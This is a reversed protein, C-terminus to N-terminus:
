IFFIENFFKGKPNCPSNLVNSFYEQYQSSTHDNSFTIEITKPLGTPLIFGYNNVNINIIKKQLKSSFQIIKELNIDVDHFEIIIDLFFNQYTLIDELIRYESGEIDIKLIGKHNQFKNRIFKSIISKFSIQNDIDYGVFKNILEVDRKSLFFFHHTLGIFHNKLERYRLFILDKILKKVLSLKTSTYDFMTIAKKRSKYFDLEFDFNYDIGMSILFESRHISKNSLIYGGDYKSGLRILNDSYHPSLSKPLYIKQELKM